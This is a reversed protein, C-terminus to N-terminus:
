PHSIPPSAMFTSRNHSRPDNILSLIFHYVSLITHPFLYFSYIKSTNAAHDLLPLWPTDDPCTRSSVSNSYELGPYTEVRIGGIRTESIHLLPLPLRVLRERHITMASTATSGRIYAQVGFCLTGGYAATSCKALVLCGLTPLFASHIQM